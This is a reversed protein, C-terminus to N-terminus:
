KLLNLIREFDEFSILGNVELIRLSGIKTDAEDLAGEEFFEQAEELESIIDKLTLGECAETDEFDIDKLIKRIEDMIMENM